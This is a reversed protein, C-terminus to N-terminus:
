FPDNKPIACRHKLLEYVMLQSKKDPEIGPLEVSFTSTLARPEPWNKKQIM